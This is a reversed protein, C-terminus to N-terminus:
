LRDWEARVEREWAAPDTIEPFLPGVRKIEELAALRRQGIEEGSHMSLDIGESASQREASTTDIAVGIGHQQLLKLLEDLSEQDKLTLVAKVKM